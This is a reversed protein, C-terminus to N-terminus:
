EVDDDHRKYFAQREEEHHDCLTRIWGGSRRAGPVGCVECTEAAWNEAMWIAGDCFDDGGDMYFRLGGFKEKIQAVNPFADMKGNKIAWECHKYITNSLADVIKFWGEGVSIGCYVDKYMEPYKENLSAVFKDYKDM